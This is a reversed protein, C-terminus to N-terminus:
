NKVNKKEGKINENKYKVCASYFLQLYDLYVPDGDSVRVNKGMYILAWNMERAHICNTENHVAYGQEVTKFILDDSPRTYDDNGRGFMSMTKENLRKKAAWTICNQYKYIQVLSSPYWHSTTLKPLDSNNYDISWNIWEVFIFGQYHLGIGSALAKLTEEDPETSVFEPEPPKEKRNFWSILSM